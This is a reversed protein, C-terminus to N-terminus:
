HMTRLYAGHAENNHHVLSSFQFECIKFAKLDWRAKYDGSVVLMM